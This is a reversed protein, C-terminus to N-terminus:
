RRRTKARAADRQARQTQISTVNQAYVTLMGEQGARKDFVPYGEIILKDNPNDQISDRVRRWQKLKILILYTM